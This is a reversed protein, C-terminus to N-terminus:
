TAIGGHQFQVSNGAFVSSVGTPQVVTSV